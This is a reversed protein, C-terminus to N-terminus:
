SVGCVRKGSDNGDPRVDSVHPRCLGCFLGGNADRCHTIVLKSVRRLVVDIQQMLQVM